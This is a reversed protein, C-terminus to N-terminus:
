GAYLRQLLFVEADPKVVVHRNSAIIQGDVSVSVGRAIAPELGPYAAVLADLLQGVTEGEVEVVEHGDALARLGSWLNVAVM